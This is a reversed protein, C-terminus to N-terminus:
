PKQHETYVYDLHAESTMRRKLCEEEGSECIESGMPEEIDVFSGESRNIKELDLSGHGQKTALFRAAVLRSSCILLLLLLLPVSYHLSRKMTGFNLIHEVSM